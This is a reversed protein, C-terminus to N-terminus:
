ASLQGHRAFALWHAHRDTMAALALPARPAGKAHGRAERARLHLDLSARGHERADAIAAIVGVVVEARAAAHRDIPQRLRQGVEDRDGVAREGACRHRRRLDGDTLLPRMGPGHGGDRLHLKM